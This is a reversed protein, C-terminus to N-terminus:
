SLRGLKRTTLKHKLIVLAITLNVFFLATPFLFTALNLRELALISLGHRFINLFYTMFTESRPSKITKRLTPVAASVDILTIIIVSLTPDKTLIWPIIALLAGGFFFKDSRTIDKSGKKFALIAILITMLGTAATTWSGAGGGKQWQGLFAIITMVAWIIWSFVHPKTKNKLIDLIYFGHGIITLIVAIIGILEKM